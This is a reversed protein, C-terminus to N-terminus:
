NVFKGDIFCNADRFGAQAHQVGLCALFSADRFGVKAHQVGLKCTSGPFGKWSFMIAHIAPWM